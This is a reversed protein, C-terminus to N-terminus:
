VQPFEGAAPGCCRGGYARCLIYWKRHWLHADGSGSVTPAFVDEGPALVYYDSWGGARNSFDSIQGLTTPLDLLSLRDM